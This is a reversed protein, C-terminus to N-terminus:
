HTRTFCPDCTSGIPRRDGSFSRRPASRTKSSSPSHPALELFSPARAQDHRPLCLPNYKSRFTTATNISTSALELADAPVPPPPPLPAASTPPKDGARGDGSLGTWTTSSGSHYTGQVKGAGGHANDLQGGAARARPVERPLCPSVNTFLPGNPQYRTPVLICLLSHQPRSIVTGPQVTPPTGPTSIGQEKLFILLRWPGGLGPM